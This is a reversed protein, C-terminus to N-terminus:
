KTLSIDLNHIMPLNATTLFDCMRMKLLITLVKMSLYKHNPWQSIRHWWAGYTCNISPFHKTRHIHEWGEGGTCNISWQYSNSAATTFKKLAQFSISSCQFYMCKGSQTNKCPYDANSAVNSCHRTLCRLPMRATTPHISAQWWSGVQLRRSKSRTWVSRQIRSIWQVQARRNWLPLKRLQCRSIECGIM